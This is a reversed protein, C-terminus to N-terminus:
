GLTPATRQGTCREVGATQVLQCCRELRWRTLVVGPMGVVALRGAHRDPSSAATCPLWGADPAPPGVIHDTGPGPVPTTSSDLVTWCDSPNSRPLSTLQVAMLAAVSLDTPRWAYCSRPTSGVPAKPRRACLLEPDSATRHCHATQDQQGGIRHPPRLVEGLSYSRGTPAQRGRRGSM